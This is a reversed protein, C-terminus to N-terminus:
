IDEEENSDDVELQFFVLSGYFVELLRLVLLLGITRQVRQRLIEVLNELLVVRVLLLLLVKEEVKLGDELVPYVAFLLQIVVDTDAVQHQSFVLLCIVVKM